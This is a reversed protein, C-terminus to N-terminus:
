GGPSRAPGGMRRGCPPKVPGCSRPRLGPASRGGGERSRRRNWSRGPPAPWKTACDPRRAPLSLRIPTAVGAWWRIGEGGPAHAMPVGAGEHTAEVLRRPRAWLWEWGCITRCSCVPQFEIRIGECSEAQASGLMSPHLLCLDPDDGYRSRYHDAARRVRSNLSAGRDADYWLMGVHMKM